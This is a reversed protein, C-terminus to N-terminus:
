NTKNEKKKYNINRIEVTMHEKFYAEKEKKNKCAHDGCWYVTKGSSCGVLLCFLFQFSLRVQPRRHKM